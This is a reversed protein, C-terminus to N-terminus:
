SRGGKELSKGFLVSPLLAILVICLAPVSAMQWEGESTFEYVKVAFTDWGIPRMILTIPMEKVVEIFTFAAGGVVAPKMLPWHIKRFLGWQSAGLLVAADDISAPIRKFNSQLPQYMVNLFRISLAYALFLISIFVIAVEIQDLGLSSKLLLAGVGLVTGPVAYGVLSFQTLVSKKGDREYISLMMGLVLAIIVASIGIVSSAFGLNALRLFDVDQRFTWYFMRSVPVVIAASVFVFFAFSVAVSVFPGLKEKEGTSISAGMEYFQKRSQSRNQWILLAVVLGISCLALLAAVSFSYLDFWARYILFTFTEFNFASVTGFDSLVEMNVLVLGSLIWPLNAPIEVKFFARWGSVGLSQATQRLSMGQREFGLRTLLFMYPTLTLIMVFTLGFFNRVSMQIPLGWSRLASQVPGSFDFLDIFLFALVYGPFAVGIPLLLGWARSGWVQYRSVLYALGIGLISSGLSVVFMLSFTNVLATPLLVSSVHSWTEGEPELASPILSLIPAM